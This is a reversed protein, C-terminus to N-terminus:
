KYVYNRYLWKKSKETPPVDISRFASFAILNNSYRTLYDVDEVTAIRKRRSIQSVVKSVFLYEKEHFFAQLANLKLRSYRVDIHEGDYFIMGISLQESIEPRIVAYIISFKLNEM